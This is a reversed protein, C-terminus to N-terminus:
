GVVHDIMGRRGSPGIAFFTKAGEEVPDQAFPEGVALHLDKPLDGLVVKDGGAFLDGAGMGALYHSYGGGAPGDLYNHNIDDPQFVPFVLLM